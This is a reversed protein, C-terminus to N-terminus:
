RGETTRKFHQEGREFPQEAGLDKEANGRQAVRLLPSSVIDGGRQGNDGAGFDGVEVDFIGIFLIGSQQIVHGQVAIPLPQIGLRELSCDDDDMSEVTVRVRIHAVHLAGFDKVPKMVM